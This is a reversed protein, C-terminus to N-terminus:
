SLSPRRARAFMRDLDEQTAEGVNIIPTPTQAAYEDITAEYVRLFFTCARYEESSLKPVESPATRRAIKTFTAGIFQKARQRLSDELM